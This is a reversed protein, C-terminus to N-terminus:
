AIKTKFILASIKNSMGTNVTKGQASPMISWYSFFSANARSIRLMSSKKCETKTLFKQTKAAIKSWKRQMYHLNQQEFRSVSSACFHGGAFFEPEIQALIEHWCGGRNKWLFNTPSKIITFSPFIALLWNSVLQFLLIWVREFSRGKYVWTDWRMCKHVLCKWRPLSLSMRHDRAKVAIKM